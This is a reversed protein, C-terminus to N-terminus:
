RAKEQKPLKLERMALENFSYGTWASMFDNLWKIYEAERGRGDSTEGYLRMEKENKKCMAIIIEVRGKLRPDLESGYVGILQELQKLGMEYNWHPPKDSWKLEVGLPKIKYPEIPLQLNERGLFVIGAGCYPCSNDSLSLGGGCSPCILARPEFESVGM